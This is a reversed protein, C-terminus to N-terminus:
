SFPSVVAGKPVADSRSIAGMGCIICIHSGVTSFKSGCVNCADHGITSLRGLTAACFHSPDEAPDISRDSLGRQSCLNILSRLEDQKNSPARSLLLELMSKAFGYNQVDMNKKIATRICMTRHKAMLPLASLHRALRAIEDKASIANPGQVKQLRSIEQSVFYCVCTLLIILDVDSAYHPESSIRHYIYQLRCSFSRCYCFPLSISLM